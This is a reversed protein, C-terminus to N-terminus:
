RLLQIWQTYTTNPTEVNLFYTGSPLEKGSNDQGVWQNTYGEGKSFVERGYRNYIKVSKPFFKALDLADNKGDGNPSIGAPLESCALVRVMYSVKDKCGDKSVINVTVMYKGPELVDGAKKNNLVQGAENTYLDYSTIESYSYLPNPLEPLVYTDCVDKDEPQQMEPKEGEVIQITAVSHCNSIVHTVAVYITQPLSTPVYHSPNPLPNAGMKADAESLHYTIQYENLSAGVKTIESKIQDSYMTLDVEQLPQDPYKCIVIDNGIKEPMKVPPPVIVKFEKKLVLDNGGCGPYTIRAEFNTDHTITYNMNPNNGILVGDAYWGFDVTTNGNPTFRWAEQQAEWTGINRGPPVTAQTGNGNILAIVGKGQNWQPCSNRNKVYVEVINTIEYIVIQYTQGPLATNCSSLFLDVDHYNVVLARCPYTGLVAYNINPNSGANVISPNIDQFVGLIANRLEHHFNPNPLSSYPNLEWQSNSTYNSGFVVAGNSGVQAKTFNKGYFCVQFPLNVVPSWIDDTSINMPTGETFPFPPNYPISEVKYSTTSKFAESDFNAELKVSVGGERECAVYEGNSNVNFDLPSVEIKACAEPSFDSFNHPGSWFSKDNAGCVARVYVEYLVGQQAQYIYQPNNQVVQVVTTASPVGTNQPQIVIEWQTENGLPTWSIVIDGNVNKSIIIGVPKPCPLMNTATNDTASSPNYNNATGVYLSNTGSTANGGGITSYNLSDNSFDTGEFNESLPSAEPLACWKASGRRNCEEIVSPLKSIQTASMLQTFGILILINLLFRKM